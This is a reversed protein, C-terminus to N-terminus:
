AHRGAAAEAPVDTCLRASSAACPRTCVAPLTCVHGHALDAPTSHHLRARNTTRLVQLTEIACEPVCCRVVCRPGQAVDAIPSLLSPSRAASRADRQAQLSLNAMKRIEEEEDIERLMDDDGAATDDDVINANNEM